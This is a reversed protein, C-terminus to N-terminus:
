GVRCTKNPRRFWGGLGVDNRAHGPNKKVHSELERQVDAAWAIPRVGKPFLEEIWLAIVGAVHPCGYEYWLVTLRGSGAKASLIDEGPASVVCRDEFFLCDSTSEASICGVLIFGDSAGPSAVAVTLLPDVHRRSENGSAAV